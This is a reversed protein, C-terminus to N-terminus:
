IAQVTRSQFQGLRSSREDIVVNRGNESERVDSTASRTEPEKVFVTIGNSIFTDFM